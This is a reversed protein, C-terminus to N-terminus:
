LMDKIHAEITQRILTDNQDAANSLFRATGGRPHNFHIGEHQYAAYIKAFVVAAGPNTVMPLPVVRASRRLDGTMVPTQLVAQSRLVEAGARAGREARARIQAVVGAVDLGDSM